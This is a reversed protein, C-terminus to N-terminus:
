ARIEAGFYVEEAEVVVDDRLAAWQLGRGSRKGNMFLVFCMCLGAISLIGLSVQLSNEQKKKSHGNSFTWHEPKTNAQISKNPTAQSPALSVNLRTTRM